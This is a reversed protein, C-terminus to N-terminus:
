KDSGAPSLKIKIKRGGLIGGRFGLVCGIIIIGLLGQWEQFYSSTVTSMITVITAGLSPGLFSLMGGILCMMLGEASLILSMYTPFGGRQLMTWLIGAVATFLGSIIFIVLQFKKNDIGLFCIREENERLGETVKGFPSSVIMRILVYCILVVVLVFFYFGLPSSFMSPRPIGIFGQSGGTLSIWKNALTALLINFALHLLAFTMSDGRLCFFGIIGSAVASLLLGAFFALTLPLGGKLLLLGFSYGGIGLFMAQGLPMMGGYGLQINISTAFLAMILIRTFLEVRHVPLSVALISLVVITIVGFGISKNRALVQMM